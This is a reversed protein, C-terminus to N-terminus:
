SRPPNGGDREGEAGFQQRLRDQASDVQGEYKNGTKKDVMDGAKDVGKGAQEEHGKLMKKIKDMASM